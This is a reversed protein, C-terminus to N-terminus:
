NICTKNVTPVAHFHIYFNNNNNKLYAETWQFLCWCGCEGSWSYPSSERTWMWRMCSPDNGNWLLVVWQYTLHWEVHATKQRKTVNVYAIKLIKIHTRNWASTHYLANRHVRHMQGYVCRLTGVSLRDFDNSTIEVINYISHHLSLHFVFTFIVGHLQRM